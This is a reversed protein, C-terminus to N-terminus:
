KLFSLYSALASVDADSMETSIGPMPPGASAHYGRAWDGLKRKLYFYSLGALRPISGAGQAYPGHCAGCAPVNAGPKGAVYLARGQDLLRANGDNAPTPPLSSLYAALNRAAAQSLHVPAGWMFQKSLPNDRAHNAFSALQMQLYQRTQGALRPASTYGQFSPGHCWACNRDAFRQGFPRDDEGAKATNFCAFIAVSLIISLRKM